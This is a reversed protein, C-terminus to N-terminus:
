CKLGFKFNEAAIIGLYSVTGNIILRLNSIFMAHVNYIMIQYPLIETCGKADSWFRASEWRLLSQIESYYFLQPFSLRHM